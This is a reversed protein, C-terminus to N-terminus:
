KRKLIAVAEVHPTQPFLDCVALDSLQYENFRVLEKTMQQPNCSVYVLVHPSLAKIKQITKQDMGVRPPDTILVLDNHSQALRGVTSADASVAELNSIKQRKVNEKACEINVSEIDVIYTKSFIDRLSLGFTGAGGYLDILVDTSLCNDELLERCYAIMKETMKTNNQFFGQSSFEIITNHLKEQMTLSGKVAFAEPSLSMDKDKPLTAIVVNTATSITAYDKFLDIHAQLAPSDENLVFSVTSSPIHESSRIVIYKACGSQRRTDFPILDRKKQDWWVAVEKLLNNVGENAIPCNTVPIIQDKADKHRLGPGQATAIFDMRSRYGYPKDSFVKVTEPLKIGCRELSQFVMQKKNDLQVEYDIHQSSCGGCSGFIPCSPNTMRSIIGQGM